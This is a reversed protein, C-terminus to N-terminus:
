SCQKALSTIAATTIATAITTVAFGAVDMDMRSMTLRRTPIPRIITMTAQPMTVVWWGYWGHHHHGGYYGVSVGPASVGVDVYTRAFAAPALALGAAALLGLALARIGRKRSNM